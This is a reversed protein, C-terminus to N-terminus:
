MVGRNHANQHMKKNLILIPVVEFRFKQGNMMKLYGVYNLFGRRVLSQQNTISDAYFNAIVIKKPIVWQKCFAIQLCFVSMLLSKM